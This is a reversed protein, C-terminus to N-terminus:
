SQAVPICLIPFDIIDRIASFRRRYYYTIKKRYSNHIKLLESFRKGEDTKGWEKRLLIVNKKKKEFNKYRTVAKKLNKPAKDSKAFNCLFKLRSQQSFVPATKCYPCSGNSIDSRFWPIICESHFQHNCEPIKYVNNSSLADHCIPCIDFSQDSTTQNNDTNTDSTNTNSPTDM